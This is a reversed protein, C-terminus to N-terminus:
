RRLPRRDVACGAAHTRARDPHSHVAPVPCGGATAPVAPKALRTPQLRSVSLARHRGGARRGFCVLRGVDALRYRAATPRLPGALISIGGMENVARFGDEDTVDDGVFVPTRGAFPPEAMFAAIATGKHVGRPRLEVVASGGLVEFGPSELRNVADTCVTRAGPASRFHLAFTCGKDEFFVGENAAAVEALRSRARETESPPPAADPASSRRGDVSRREAGHVGAVAAVSGDLWHDIEAIPRGTVVALSRGLFEATRGLAPILEPSPRVEDPRPAFDVITGDFDLFLAWDVRAPPPSSLTTGSGDACTERAAPFTLPEDEM